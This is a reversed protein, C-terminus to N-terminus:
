SLDSIVEKAEPLISIYRQYKAYILKFLYQKITGKFRIGEAYNWVHAFVEMVYQDAMEEDNHLEYAIMHVFGYYRDILERYAMLEKNKLRGLLDMESQLEEHSLGKEMSM